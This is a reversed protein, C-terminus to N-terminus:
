FTGCLEVYKIDDSLWHWYLEKQKNNDYIPGWVGNRYAEVMGTKNHSIEVYWTIIIKTIMIMMTMMMMM